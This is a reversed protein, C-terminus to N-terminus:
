FPAGVWKPSTKQISIIALGGALEWSPCTGNIQVPKLGGGLTCHTEEAFNKETYHKCVECDARRNHRTQVNFLDHSM